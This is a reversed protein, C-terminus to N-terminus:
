GSEDDTDLELDSLINKAETSLIRNGRLDKVDEDPGVAEFEKAAVPSNQSLESDTSLLFFNCIWDSWYNKQIQHPDNLHFNNVIWWSFFLTFYFFLLRKLISMLTTTGFYLLQRKQKEKQQQRNKLGKVGLLSWSM